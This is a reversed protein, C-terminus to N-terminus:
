THSMVHSPWDASLSPVFLMPQLECTRSLGLAAPVVCAQNYKPYGPIDGPKESVLRWFFYDKRKKENQRIHATCVLVSPTCCDTTCVTAQSSSIRQFMVGLVPM